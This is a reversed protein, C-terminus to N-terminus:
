RLASVKINISNHGNEGVVELFSTKKIKKRWLSVGGGGGGGGLSIFM